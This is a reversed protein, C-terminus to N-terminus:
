YKSVMQLASSKEVQRYLFCKCPPQAPTADVSLVPLFVLWRRRRQSTCEQQVRPWNSTQSHKM